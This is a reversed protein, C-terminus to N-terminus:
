SELRICVLTDRTLRPLDTARLWSQRDFVVQGVLAHTRAADVCWLGCVVGVVPPYSPLILTLKQQHQVPGM